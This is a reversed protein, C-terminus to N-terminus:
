TGTQALGIFDPKDILLLPIAQQQIPTAEKFGLADIAKLVKEGLGLEPFTLM